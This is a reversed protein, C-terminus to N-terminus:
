RRGSRADGGGSGRERQWSAQVCGLSAPRMRGALSPNDRSLKVLLRGEGTVVCKERWVGVELAKREQVHRLKSQQFREASYGSEDGRREANANDGESVLIAPGLVLGRVGRADHHHVADIMDDFRVADQVLVGDGLDGGICEGLLQWRRQQGVVTHGRNDQSLPSVSSFPLNPSTTKDPAYSVPRAHM